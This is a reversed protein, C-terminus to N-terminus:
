ENSLNNNSAFSFITELKNLLSSNATTLSDLSGSLLWVQQSFLCTFFAHDSSENDDCYRPCTPDVSIHRHRFNEKVAVIRSGIKWFFHKLKPPIPASWIM